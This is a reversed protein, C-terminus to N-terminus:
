KERNADKELILNIQKSLINFGDNCYSNDKIIFDAFKSTPEIYKKYMPEVSNKYQSLISTNTRARHKADRKIRVEKRLNGSINLFIKFNLLDRIKKEYFLLIGEILIIKLPCINKKIKKRTHTKYDYQPIRVTNNNKLKILDSELHKFDFSSPHDFNNKERESMKLMSLDFYYSDLNIISIKKSGYKELLQNTLFTKGSCSGGSIGITYINPITM